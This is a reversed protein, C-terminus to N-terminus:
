CEASPVKSFHRVMVVIWAVVGALFGVFMVWAFSSLHPQVARNADIATWHMGIFLAMVLCALWAMHRGLYRSTEVRREPSLWYERHPLNISGSPLVAILFGVGVLLSPILLLITGTLQLYDTRSMWGNANGQADFHSAVKDPLEQAGWVLSAGGVVALIVLVVLPARMASITQM